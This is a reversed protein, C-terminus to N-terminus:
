SCDLDAHCYVLQMRQLGEIDQHETILYLNKIMWILKPFGM